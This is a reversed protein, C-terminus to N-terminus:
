PGFFEKAAARVEFSRDEEAGKKLRQGIGGLPDPLDPNIVLRAIAARVGRDGSDFLEPLREALAAQAAPRAPPLEAFAGLSHQIVKSSPDFLGSLLISELLDDDSRRRRGIVAAEIANIRVRADPDRSLVLLRPLYDAVKGAAMALETKAARLLEPSYSPWLSEAGAEPIEEILNPLADLQLADYAVASVLVRVADYRLNRATSSNTAAAILLDRSREPLEGLKVVASSLTIFPNETGIGSTGRRADNIIKEIRDTLEEVARRLEPTDVLRSARWALDVVVNAPLTEAPKYDEAQSLRDVLAAVTPLANTEISDMFSLEYLRHAPESPLSEAVIPTMAMLIARAEEDSLDNFRKEWEEPVRLSLVSWLVAVQRYIPHETQVPSFRDLLEISTRESILDWCEVAAELLRSDFRHVLPGSRMLHQVIFDASAADFHREAMDIIQSLQKGSGLAWLAVASAYGSSSTAGGQLLHAALQTQLEARLWIAGAWRAQLEATSPQNLPAGGVTFSLLWPSRAMEEVNKVLAKLAADTAKERIWRYETLEDPEHSWDRPWPEGFLNYSEQDIMVRLMSGKPTWEKVRAFLDPLREDWGYEFAASILKTTLRARLYPDDIREIEAQAEDLRGPERDLGSWCLLCLGLLRVGSESSESLRRYGQLAEEGEDSFEALIAHAAFGLPDGKEPPDDLQRLDLAEVFERAGRSESSILAPRDWVLASILEPQM